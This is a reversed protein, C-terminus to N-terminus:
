KAAGANDPLLHHEDRGLAVFGGRTKLFVRDAYLRASIDAAADAPLLYVANEVFARFDYDSAIACDLITKPANM